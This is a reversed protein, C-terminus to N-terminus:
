WGERASQKHRNVRPRGLTLYFICHLHRGIAINKDYMSYRDPTQLAGAPDTDTFM